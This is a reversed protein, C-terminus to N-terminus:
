GTLERELPTRFRPTVRVEGLYGAMRAREVEIVAVADAGVDELLRLAIEGDKRQAWGGVIRGNWWVTPGINGTRDFLAERHEGLYWERGAWGMPTPDLSPLLAAWPGPDPVPEEDGPLLLGTVGGLDVEAPGIAALAKKVEVATWGTWWKLDAVPAPGYAALWRRALEARAEEPSPRAMGEPLWREVPSWRYQGSLWSGLPRGRVIEGEMALLGLVRGTLNTPRSYAKGPAPDYRLKLRPEAEALQVATAERREVLARRTSAAVEDLWREDGLGAEALQRVLSRRERVAVADTCAAQVVPALGDPVVFMTRRMGLMRLVSRDDYLAREVDASTGAVTRAAVSLFVTAPDTAHLAVVAGAITPVDDSRVAPALRHRVALRARREVADFVRM